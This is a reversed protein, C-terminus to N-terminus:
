LVAVRERAAAVATVGVELGDVAARSPLDLAARALGRSTHEYTRLHLELYPLLLLGALPSRRAAALGALFLLLRPHSGKWFMGLPLLRRLGPHRGLLRPNAGWRVTERLAEPLHRPHVAHWV